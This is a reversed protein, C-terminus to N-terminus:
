VAMRKRLIRATSAGFPLLMLAGALLTSPEPTVVDPTVVHTAGPESEIVTTPWFDNATDAKNLLNDVGNILTAGPPAVNSWPAGSNNLPFAPQAVIPGNLAGYHIDVFVDFFSTFTGSGPNNFGITMSGISARGSGDSSQLTFFYYGLPGGGLSVPTATELQLADM